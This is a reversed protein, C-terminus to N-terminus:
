DREELVDSGQIGGCCEEGSSAKGIHAKSNIGQECRRNCLLNNSIVGGDQNLQM